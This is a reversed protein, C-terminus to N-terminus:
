TGAPDPPAIREAADAAADHQGGDEVRRKLALNMDEFGRRTPGGLSRWLLPLLLGRFRERQVLRVREAGQAELLFAHEGDLVRPLWLRGLWRLERQPSVCVVVPRFTMPKQGHPRISVELRGGERLEGTARCIFPNWEPYEDFRTLVEWVRASSGTIEIETCIERM